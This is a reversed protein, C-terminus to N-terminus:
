GAVRADLRIRKRDEESVYGNELFWLVSRALAQRASRHKYGLEREAKASTCWSYAGTFDRAMKHTFEPDPGGLKARLEQLRGVFEALSKSVPKAPGPLGTVEALQTFVEEYTLDDGGLIYREGARGKDMALIHGAAVDDSDVVNVGGEICPFDMLLGDWALFRLVSQGGPTPKVDGPGYVASPLVPVVDFDSAFSMAVEEAKVKARLYADPDSLTMTATEDMARPESTVGLTAVSSTYVVRRVGRKRAATLVAETGQIATAEIANPDRDWFKTMAAVHFVRDCGALSRYVTHEVMVDGEVVEVMGEPLGKAFRRSSSARVLAKVPRGALALQRVIRGGIFGSAGTVLIKESM